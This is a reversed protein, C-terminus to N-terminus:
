TRQVAILFATFTTTPDIHNPSKWRIPMPQRIKEVLGLKQLFVVFGTAGGLPTVARQTERLILRQNSLLASIERPVSNDAADPKM